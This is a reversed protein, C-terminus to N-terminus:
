LFHSLATDGLCQIEASGLCIDGWYFVAFQGPAIGRDGREICIHWSESIRHKSQGDESFRLSSELLKPCFDKEIREMTCRLKVPGHRLKLQLVSDPRESYLRQRSEESQLWWVKGVWFCRLWQDPSQSDAHRVYLTNTSTDKGWVYWPGDALGLGHRQGITHFWLGRHEGLIPVDEDKKAGQCQEVDVIPGPKEGLYHAIFNRFKLKGLFCIGQSDKRGATPLGWRKALTRVEAKELCGLPFLLGQLQSLQALFYSQDKQLDVGQRLLLESGFPQLLAYHGSAILPTPKGAYRQRLCERFAGFKIERNCFIDPSPTRSRRLQALTYEVVYRYYEDQLSIIHLPVDLQECIAAAYDLDEQWPCDGLFQDAEDFWIKLYYAELDKAGCRRLGALAVSSDVGGSLLVVIKKSASWAQESDTGCSNDAGLGFTQLYRQLRYEPDNPLSENM